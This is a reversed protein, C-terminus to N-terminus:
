NPPVPNLTQMVTALSKKLQKFFIIMKFEQWTKTLYLGVSILDTLCYPHSLARTIKVSIANNPSQVPSGPSISM